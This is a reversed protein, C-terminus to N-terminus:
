PVKQTSPMKYMSDNDSCVLPSSNDDGNQLYPLHSWSSDFLKDFNSCSTNCNHGPNSVLDTQSWLWAREM